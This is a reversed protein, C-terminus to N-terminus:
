AAEKLKAEFIQNLAELDGLVDCVDRGDLEVIARKLWNSAAFDRMVEIQRQMYTPKNM